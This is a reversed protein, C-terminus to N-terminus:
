ATPRAPPSPSTTEFRVNARLTDLQAVANEWADRTAFGYRKNDHVVTYRVGALGCYLLEFVNKIHDDYVYVEGGVSRDVSSTVVGRELMAENVVWAGESFAKSGVDPVDHWLFDPWDDQASAAPCYEIPEGRADRRVLYALTASGFRAKIDVEWHETKALHNHALKRADLRTVVGNWVAADKDTDACIHKGQRLAIDLLTQFQAPNDRKMERSLTVRAPMTMPLRVDEGPVSRSVWREGEKEYAFLRAVVAGSPDWYVRYLRRAAADAVHTGLFFMGDDPGEAGPSLDLSSTVQRPRIFGTGPDVDDANVTLTLSAGTIDIINYDGEVTKLYRPNPEFTTTRLDPVRRFFATSMDATSGDPWVIGTVTLADSRGVLPWRFGRGPQAGSWQIRDPRADNRSGGFLHVGKYQRGTGDLRRYVSGLEVVSALMELLLDRGYVVTGGTDSRYEEVSPPPTETLTVGLQELVAKVDCHGAWSVWEIRGPQVHGNGDWDLRMGERLRPDGVARRFTIRSRDLSASRVDGALVEVPTGDQLRLQGGGDRYIWAGAERHEAGPDIRLLEYRPTLVDDGPVESVINRSRRDIMFGGVTREIDTEKIVEYAYKHRMLHDLHAQAQSRQRRVSAAAADSLLAMAESGEAPLSVLMAELYHVFPADHGFSHYTGTDADDFVLTTAYAEDELIRVAAAVDDADSGRFGWGVVLARLQEFFAATRQVRISDRWYRESGRPAAARDLDDGELRARRRGLQERAWADVAEVTEPVAEPAEVWRQPGAPDEAPPVQIHLRPHPRGTGVREFLRVHARGGPVLKQDRVSKVRTVGDEPLGEAFAAFAHDEIVKM